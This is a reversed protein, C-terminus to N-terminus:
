RDFAAALKGGDTKSMARGLVALRRAFADQLAEIESERSAKEATVLASLRRNQEAQRQNVTTQERLEAHQEQLERNQKQLENLLMSILTLYRVTEVKGDADYGVLDPYLKAVEEAVLGYQLTGAPDRRTKPRQRAQM